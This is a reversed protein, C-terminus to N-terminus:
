NSHSASESPEPSSSTTSSASRITSNRGHKSSVKSRTKNAPARLTLIRDRVWETLSLESSKSSSPLLLAITEATDGVADYCESFMWEPVGAAAIALAVLKPIQMLQKPKRGTLFYIAWASDEPSASQFYSRMAAVKENTKTTEDLAIYLDTFAKM